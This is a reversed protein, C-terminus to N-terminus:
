AGARGRRTCARRGRAASGRSTSASRKVATSRTLWLDDAAITRIEAIYLLPRLRDGFRLIAEIAAPGHRRDILYESQIEDGASPMFGSRFHPLRDWWLGPQGLQATANVPDAGPIPHRDVTAAPAGLLEDEIETRSKLWIQDVDDSWLTFVSVSDAAATIADFQEFLM